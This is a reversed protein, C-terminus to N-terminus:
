CVPSLLPMPCLAEKVGHPYSFAIKQVSVFVNGSYMSVHTALSPSDELGRIYRVGGCVIM